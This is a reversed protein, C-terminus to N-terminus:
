YKSKALTIGVQKMYKGDRDAYSVAPNEGEFFLIQSIGSNSYVRISSSTYNCLELVLVGEWGAELVTPPNGLGVRAYSSKSTVLGTVNRPIKFYELSNALAFSNPPILISKEERVTVFNDETFNKPDAVTNGKINTFIKFESGVRLDYGFSQLGYSIGEQISKDVFPDIMKKEEVLKKIQKDNLIM